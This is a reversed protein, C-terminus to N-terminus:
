EQNSGSQGAAVEAALGTTVLGNLSPVLGHGSFDEETCRCCKLFLCFPVGLKDGLVCTKFSLRARRSRTRAGIRSASVLRWLFPIVQALRNSWYFGSQLSCPAPMIENHAVHFLEGASRCAM